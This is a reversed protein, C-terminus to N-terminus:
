PLEESSLDDRDFASLDVAGGFPVNFDRPVDVTRANYRRLGGFNVLGGTDQTSVTLDDAYQAYLDKLGDRIQSLKESSQNATYDVLKSAQAYLRRIVLMRVQAEIAFDNGPWFASARDYLTDIEPDGMITSDTGLDYRVADRQAPTPM